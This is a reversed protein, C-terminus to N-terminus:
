IDKISGFTYGLSRWERIMDGLIAANTASTPHLLIIAGDHTISLLKQKALEVDMQRSNDWDDYALSWFVTKYGNECLTKMASISYRGEPFRFIREMDRGTMEKYQGELRSLDAILEADSLKTMDKHKTTHNCVLHGEEAMRIILDPNKAIINSLLFFAGTVNERKMVDLIKEINGNEYGADFTLYLKKEGGSAATKDIFIGGYKEVEDANKPFSPTENGRKTIYWNFSEEAYSVTSLLLSICIVTSIIKFIKM